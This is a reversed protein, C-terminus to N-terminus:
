GNSNESQSHSPLDKPLPAPPPPAPSARRVKPLEQIAEDDPLLQKAVGLLVDRSSQPMHYIAVQQGGLPVVAVEDCAFCVLLDIADEGAGCRYAVGPRFACKVKVGSEFAAPVRLVQLLASAQAAPISVEEGVVEYNGIYTSGPLRQYDPTDSPTVRQLLVPERSGLLASLPEPGAALIPSVMAALAAVILSPIAIRSSGPKFLGCYRM